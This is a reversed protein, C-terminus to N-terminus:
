ELSWRCEADAGVCHGVLWDYTRGDYTWRAMCGLQMPFSRSLGESDGGLTRYGWGWCRGGDRLPRKVYRCGGLLFVSVVPLMGRGLAELAPRLELDGDPNRSYPFLPKVSAAQIQKAHCNGAGVRMQIISLLLMVNM